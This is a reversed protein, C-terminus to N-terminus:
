TEFIVQNIKSKKKKKLDAAHKEWIKYIHDSWFGQKNRGLYELVKTFMWGKM